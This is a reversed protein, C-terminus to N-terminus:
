IQAPPKWANQPSVSALVLASFPNEPLYQRRYVVSPKMATQQARCQQKCPSTFIRPTTINHTDIVRRLKYSPFCLLLPTLSGRSVVLAFTRRRM